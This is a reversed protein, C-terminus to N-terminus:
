KKKKGADRWEKYWPAMYIAGSSLGVQKAAAYPSVGKKMVLRRAEVMASSERAGM